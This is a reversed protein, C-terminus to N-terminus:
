KHISKFIGDLQLKNIDTEQIALIVNKIVDLSFIVDKKEIRVGGYHSCANLIDKATEIDNKQLPKYDIVDIVSILGGLMQEQYQIDKLHKIRINVIMLLYELYRRATNGKEQLTDRDYEQICNVEDYLVSIKDHALSINIVDMFQRSDGVSSTRGNSPRALICTTYCNVNPTQIEEKVGKVVRYIDVYYDSYDFDCSFCKTNYIRNLSSRNHYFGKLFAYISQDYEVFVVSEIYIHFKSNEYWELELRRNSDDFEFRSIRSWNGLDIFDVINSGVGHINDNILISISNKIINWDYIESEFNDNISNKLKDFFVSYDSM